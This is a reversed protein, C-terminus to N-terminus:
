GVQEGVLYHDAFSGETQTILSNLNFDGEPEGIEPNSGVCGM